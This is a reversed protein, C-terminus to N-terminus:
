KGDAWPLPFKSTIWLSVVLDPADDTLGVHVGSRPDFPGVDFIIGPGALVEVPESSVQKAFIEVGPRVRNLKWETIIGGKWGAESEEPRGDYFGVANAHLRLAGARYTALLSSEVGAGGPEATVPLLALVEMGVSLSRMLPVWKFGLAADAVEGEDARYEFESVIELNHPIGLNMRLLPSSYGTDSSERKIRFLGLRGELVWPDATEADTLRYPPFARALSPILLASLVLAATM